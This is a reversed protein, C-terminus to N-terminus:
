GIVLPGYLWVIWMGLALFAGFPVRDTLAISGKRLSALLAFALGAIAGILVVSAIGEFSVWAGAAAMLKADGLGMGERHRLTWYLFRVAVVLAFGLVAGLGHMPLAPPDFIWTAFLGAVILPLTLFDPLLFYRFDTLALAVLTWGLLCSAWLLSGSVTAAAWIAIALASLEMLPYFVAIPNGCHRCRGRLCLWSVLPVLDLWGLRAGCHPCSSRGAAISAPEEARLVVVGLFSGIFPATLVPWLWSQLTGM